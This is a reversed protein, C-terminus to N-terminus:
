PMYRGLFRNSNGNRRVITPLSIRIAASPPGGLCCVSRRCTCPGRAKRDPSSEHPRGGSAHLEKFELAKPFSLLTMVRQRQLEVCRPPGGTEETEHCSKDCYLGGQTEAEDQLTAQQKESLLDWGYKQATNRAIDKYETPTPRPLKKAIAAEIQKREAATIRNGLQDLRKPVSAM